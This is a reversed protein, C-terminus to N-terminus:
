TDKPLAGALVKKHASDEVTDEILNMANRLAEGVKSGAPLNVLDDWRAGVPLYIAAKGQFGMRIREERVRGTLRTSLSAEVEPLVALFRNFAHRLFILGLVPMAYESATLKSNARLQDAAEWLEDEIKKLHRQDM